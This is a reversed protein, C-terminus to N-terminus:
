PSLLALFPILSGLIPPLRLQTALSAKQKLHGQLGPDLGVARMHSSCELHLSYCSQTGQPKTQQLIMLLLNTLASCCTPSKAKGWHSPAVPPVTAYYCLRVAAYSPPYFCLILWFTSYYSLPSILLGQLLTTATSSLALLLGRSYSISIVALISPAM